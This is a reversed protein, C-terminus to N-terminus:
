YKKASNQRKKEGGSFHLGHHQIPELIHEDIGANDLVDDIM